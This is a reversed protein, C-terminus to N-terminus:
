SSSVAHDTVTRALLRSELCDYAAKRRTTTLLGTGSSPATTIYQSTIYTDVLDVEVSALARSNNDCMYDALSIATWRRYGLGISVSIV